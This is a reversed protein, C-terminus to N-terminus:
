LEKYDLVESAFAGYSLIYLPLVYIFFLIGLSFLSLFTLLLFSFVFKVVKPRNGRAARFSAVILSFSGKKEREAVAPLFFLGTGIYFVIVGILFATLLTCLGNVGKGLVGSVHPSFIEVYFYLAAAFAVEILFGLGMAVSASFGSGKGKKGFDFLEIRGQGARVGMRLLWVDLMSYVAVTIGLSVTMAYSELRGPLLYVTVADLAFAVFIACTICFLFSLVLKTSNGRRSMLARGCIKAREVADSKQTAMQNVQNVSM